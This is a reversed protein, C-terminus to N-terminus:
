SEYKQNMFYDILYKEIIQQLSIKSQNEYFCQIKM